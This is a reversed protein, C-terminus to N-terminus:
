KQIQVTWIAALIEQQGVSDAATGIITLTSPGSSIRGLDDWYAAAVFAGNRMRGTVVKARHGGLTAECASRELEPPGAVLANTGTGYEYVVKRSAQNWGGVELDPDQAPIERYGKPLRITFASGGVQGWEVGPAAPVACPSNPYPRAALVALCVPGLVLAQWPARM